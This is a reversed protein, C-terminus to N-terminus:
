KNFIIFNNKHGHHIEKHHEKCVSELNSYNFGLAQKELKNKGNSIPIIHHVDIASVIKGLKLCRDCLPHQSLFILRLNRWATTNYVYKYNDNDKKNSEHYKEYPKIKKLFPM